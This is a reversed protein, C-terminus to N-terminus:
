GGAVAVPVEGELAPDTEDVVEEVAPARVVGLAAALENLLQETDGPSLKKNSDAVIRAESAALFDDLSAEQAEQQLREAEADAAAQAAALDAGDCNAACGVVGNEVSYVPDGAIAGGNLHDALAADDVPANPGGVFGGLAALEAESLTEGAAARAALQYQALAGITGNFNQNRIHADLAAQNAKAANWKGKQGPSLANTVSDDLAVDEARTAPRGKPKVSATGKMAHKESKASKSSSKSSAAGGKSGSQGGKSGANGNGNGHGNGGGNGNGGKAFAMDPLSLTVVIATSGFMAIALCAVKLIQYKKPAM